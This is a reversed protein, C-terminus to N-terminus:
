QVAEMGFFIHWTYEFLRGAAVGDVETEELWMRMGRWVDLPVRRVAEGSSSTLIGLKLLIKQCFGFLFCPQLSKNSSSLM